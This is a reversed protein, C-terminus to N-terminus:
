KTEIYSILPTWDEQILRARKDHRDFISEGTYAADNYVVMDKLQTLVPHGLGDLFANLHELARTRPRVKNGVIAVPKKNKRIPKLDDIKKLFRKTANQDFASPLVPLVIIDTMKLLEEFRKLSLAAPADIVLRQTKKPIPKFERTWDAAEIPPAEKSRRKLWQLSSKQRDVDALVTRLGGAAFAGALNTSITTKGCGGKTNAVMIALAM